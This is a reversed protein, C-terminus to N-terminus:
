PVVSRAGGTAGADPEPRFKAARDGDELPLRGAPGARGPLRARGGPRPRAPGLKRLISSVHTKITAERSSCGSPSSSTRCGTALLALVETERETLSALAPPPGARAPHPRLPRAAPADGDAGAAGRRPRDRPDRGRARGAPHGQAPLRQRRRAAGRLRVRRRRLHHPDPDTRSQRGSRPPADGGRRGHEADPRGHPDRRTERPAALAVAQIGDDAEGIVRMDERAELVMRFGSRVLAQDDCLLVRISVPPSRGAPDIRPHRLRGRRAARRYAAASCSCAARAHGRPRARQATGDRAHGSGDDVVCLELVSGAQRIEVEAASADAHKLM